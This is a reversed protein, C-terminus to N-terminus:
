FSMRIAKSSIKSFQVTFFRKCEPRDALCFNWKTGDSEIYTVDIYEVIQLNQKDLYLHGM